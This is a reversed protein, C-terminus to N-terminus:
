RRRHKMARNKRIKWVVAGKIKAARKESYHKKRAWSYVKKAVSKGKVKKIKKAMIDDLKM